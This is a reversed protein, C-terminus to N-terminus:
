SWKGRLKAFAGPLDEPIVRTEGTTTIFNADGPWRPVVHWHLHEAVGAGASAGLNLGINLGPCGYANRLVTESRALLESMESRTEAPCEALTAVHAYPAILLHGAAYPFRNLVIYSRDARHVIFAEEDREGPMRCFVCGGPPREGAVYRYRWPTWLIDM